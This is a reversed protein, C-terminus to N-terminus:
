QATCNTYDLDMQNNRMVLAEEGKNWFVFSEDANAYRVGSASLTQMLPIAPGGNLSIEARGTPTPPEGPEPTPAPEGEYYAAAIVKGNDCQYVVGAILDSTRGLHWWALVGAGIVLGAAFFIIPKKM